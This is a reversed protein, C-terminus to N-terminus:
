TCGIIHKFCGEHPALLFDWITYVRLGDMDFVHKVDGMAPNKPDQLIVIGHEIPAHESRRFHVVCAGLETQCRPM